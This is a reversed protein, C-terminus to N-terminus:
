GYILSPDEELEVRGRNNAKRLGFTHHNQGWRAQMSDTVDISQGPRANFLEGNPAKIVM